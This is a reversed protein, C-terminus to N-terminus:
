PTVPQMTQRLDILPQQSIRLLGELPRDLDVVLLLIVAFVVVLLLAALHRNTGTLGHHYGMAGMALVAVFYLAIWITIPIRSRMGVMVRTAHLDIMQNLSQIYLGTPISHTDKAAATTAHMWLQRQLEGSRAIGGQFARTQVANIRADLYERLLGESAQREPEPLLGARLFTTGIANAEDLITHRREDFRTAGLGFTFALVFALLGLMSGVMAGVPADRQPDREKHRRGLGIGLEVSGQILGITILLLLWLPVQDLLDANSM